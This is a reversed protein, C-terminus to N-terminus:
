DLTLKLRGQVEDWPSPVGEAEWAAAVRYTITDATESVKELDLTTATDRFEFYPLQPTGCSTIQGTVDYDMEVELRLESLDVTRASGYLAWGGSPDSTEVEDESITTTCDPLAITTTAEGLWTYTSRQDTIRIDKGRGSVNASITARASRNWTKQGESGSDFFDLTGTLPGNVPSVVELGGRGSECHEKKAAKACAIVYYVGRKTSGPISAEVPEGRTLKAGVVPVVTRGIVPDGADKRPLRGLYLTVTAGKARGDGDNRILVNAAFRGGALVEGPVGQVSAVKLNPKPKPKPKADATTGAVLSSTVVMAVLLGM